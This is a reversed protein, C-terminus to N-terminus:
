VDACSGKQLFMILFILVLAKESIMLTIDDRCEKSGLSNYSRRTRFFKGVTIMTFVSFSECPSVCVCVCVCVNRSRAGSIPKESESVRSFHPNAIAEVEIKERSFIDARILPDGHRGINIYYHFFLVKAPSFLIRM